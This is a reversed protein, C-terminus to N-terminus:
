YVFAQLRGFLLLRNWAIIYYLSSRWHRLLENRSKSILDLQRISISSPSHLPTEYLSRMYLCFTLGYQIAFLKTASWRDAQLFFRTKHCWLLGRIVHGKIEVMVKLVVRICAIGPGDHGKVEVKFKLVDQICARDFPMENWPTCTQDRDLWKDPLFLSKHLINVSRCISLCVSPSRVGCSQMLEHFSSIIRGASERMKELLAWVWSCSTSIRTGPKFNSARSGRFGFSIQFGTFGGQIKQQGWASALKWQSISHDYTMDYKTHPSLVSKKWLASKASTLSSQTEKYAETWHSLSQSWLLQFRRLVSM